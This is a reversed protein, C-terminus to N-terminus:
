GNERYVNSTQPTQRLAKPEVLPLDPDSLESILSVAKPIEERLGHMICESAAQPSHHQDINAGLNQIIREKSRYFNLFLSSRWLRSKTESM